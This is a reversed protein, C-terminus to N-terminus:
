LGQDELCCARELTRGVDAALESVDADRYNVKGKGSSEVAVSQTVNPSLLSDLNSVEERELRSVRLRAELSRVFMSRRAM